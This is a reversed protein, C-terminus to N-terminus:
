AKEGKRMLTVRGDSDRMIYFPCPIKRKAKNVAEDRRQKINILKGNERVYGKATFNSAPIYPKAPIKPFQDWYLPELLISSSSRVVSIYDMKSIQHKELLSDLSERGYIDDESIGYTYMEVGHIKSKNTIM